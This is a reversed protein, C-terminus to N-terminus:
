NDGRGQDSTLYDPQYKIVRVGATEVASGGVILPCEVTFVLPRGDRDTLANGNRDRQQGQLLGRAIGQQGSISSDRFRVDNAQDFRNYTEAITTFGNWPSFGTGGFNQNYHLTMNWFPGMTTGSPTDRDFIAVLISEDNPGYLNNNLGFMGFYDSAIGYQGSSVIR